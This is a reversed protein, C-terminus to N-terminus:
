LTRLKRVTNTNGSDPFPKLKNTKQVEKKQQAQQEEQPEAEPEDEAGEESSTIVEDEPEEESEPQQEDANDLEPEHNLEIDLDSDDEEESLAENLEQNAKEYNKEPEDQSTEAKLCSDELSDGSQFWQTAIDLQEATYSDYLHSLTLKIEYYLRLSEAAVVSVPISDNRNSRGSASFCSISLSHENEIMPVVGQSFTVKNVVKAINIETQGEAVAQILEVAGKLIDASINGLELEDCIVTCLAKTVEAISTTNDSMQSGMMVNYAVPCWSQNGIQAQALMKGGEREFYLDWASVIRRMRASKHSGKGKQTSGAVKEHIHAVTNRHVTQIQKSDLLRIEM